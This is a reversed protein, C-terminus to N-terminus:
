RGGVIRGCDPYLRRYKLPKVKYLYSQGKRKLTKKTYYKRKKKRGKKRPM